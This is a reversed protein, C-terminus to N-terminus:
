TTVETWRLSFFWFHDQMGHNRWVVHASYLVNTIGRTANMSTWVTAFRYFVEGVAAVVGAHSTQSLISLSLMVIHVVCYDVVVSYTQLVLAEESKDSSSSIKNYNPLLWEKFMKAQEFRPANITTCCRGHLVSLSTCPHPPTGGFVLPLVARIERRMERECVDEPTERARAGYLILKRQHLLSSTIRHLPIWRLFERYKSASKAPQQLWDSVSVSSNKITRAVLRQIYAAYDFLGDKVLKGFLASVSRLNASDAAVDSTDLWDFLYDHLTARSLERHATRECYQGLLTVAAFPRHPGFQLSIVAWTLLTDLKEIFASSSSDGSCSPFFGITSMDTTCSISNLKQIDVVMSGLHELARPLLIVCCYQTTGEKSIPSTKSFYGSYRVNDSIELCLLTELLTLYFQLLTELLAELKVLQGQATSRIESLKAICADAFPKTLARSALMGDLYKDALHAVFGAQALNRTVMQQVLWLLFTRGDVLGDAYFPRLLRLCYTFCSVSRDCSDPDPLVGKFSQEINLGLRLPLAIEALQKKLYSTVVNTWDISYQMSNYNPKNRLGVTENAGLVRLFWVARLIAINNSQLLDLLDHGKAGHPVSKGFKHLPVDDNALDAFWAQCKADNLTVRSPM